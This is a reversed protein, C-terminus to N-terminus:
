AAALTEFRYKRRRQWISVSKKLNRQIRRWAAVRRRIVSEIRQRWSGKMKAM